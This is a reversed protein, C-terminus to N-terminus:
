KELYSKTAVLECHIYEIMDQQTPFSFSREMDKYSFHLYEKNCVTIQTGCNARFTIYTFGYPSQVYAIQLGDCQLEYLYKGLNRGYQKQLEKREM